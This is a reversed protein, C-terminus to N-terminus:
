TELLFPKRGNGGQEVWAGVELQKEYDQLSILNANMKMRHLECNETEAM